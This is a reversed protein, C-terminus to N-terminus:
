HASSHVDDLTMKALEPCEVAEIGFQEPEGVIRLQDDAAVVELLEVAEFLPDDTVALAEAHDEAGEQSLRGPDFREDRVLVVEFPARQAVDGLPGAVRLPRTLPELQKLLPEVDEEVAGKALAVCDHVAHLGQVVDHPGRVGEDRQDSGVHDSLGDM